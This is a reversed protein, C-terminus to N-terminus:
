IGTVTSSTADSNSAMPSDIIQDDHYHASYPSLRDPENSKLKSLNAWPLSASPVRHGQDARRPNRPGRPIQGRPRLRHCLSFESRLPDFPLSNLLSAGIHVRAMITIITPRATM